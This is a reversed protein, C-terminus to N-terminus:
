RAARWIRPLDGLLWKSLAMRMYEVVWFVQKPSHLQNAANPEDASFSQAINQVVIKSFAHM